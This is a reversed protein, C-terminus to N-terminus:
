PLFPTLPILGHLPSSWGGDINLNSSLPSHRNRSVSQMTERRATGEGGEQRMRDRGEEGHSKM